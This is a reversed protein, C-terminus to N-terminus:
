GVKLDGRRLTKAQNIRASDLRSNASLLPGHLLMFYNSQLFNERGIGRVEYDYALRCFHIRDKHRQIAIKGVDRSIRGSIIKAYDGQLHSITWFRQHWNDSSEESVHFLM